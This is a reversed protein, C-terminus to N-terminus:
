MILGTSLVLNGHPVTQHLFRSISSTVFGVWLSSWICGSVDNEEGAEGM